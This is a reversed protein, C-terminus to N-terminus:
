WDVGIDDLSLYVSGTKKAAPKIEPVTAVEGSDTGDGTEIEMWFRIKIGPFYFQAARLYVVNDDIHNGGNKVTSEICDKLSKDSQIVAQAFEPEQKCFSELVRKVYTKVCEGKRSLGKCEAFEKNIKEIAKETM